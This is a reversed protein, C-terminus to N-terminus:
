RKAERVRQLVRALLETREDKLTLRNKAYGGTVYDLYLRHDLAILELADAMRETNDAIREQVAIARDLGPAQTAAEVPPPDQPQRELMTPLATACGIGLGFLVLGAPGM